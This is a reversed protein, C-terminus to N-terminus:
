PRLPTKPIASEDPPIPLRTEDETWLGNEDCNFDRILGETVVMYRADGEDDYIAQLNPCRQMVSYGQQEVFGVLVIQIDAAGIHLPTDITRAVEYGGLLHAKPDLKERVALPPIEAAFRWESVIPKATEFYGAYGGEEKWNENYKLGLIHDMPHSKNYVLAVVSNIQELVSKGHSGEERYVPQTNRAYRWYAEALTRRFEPTVGEVSLVAYGLNGCAFFQGDFRSYTLELKDGTDATWKEIQAQPIAISFFADGPLFHLNTALAPFATLWSLILILRRHM